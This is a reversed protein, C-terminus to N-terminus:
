WSLLLDLIAHCANWSFINKEFDRKRQYFLFFGEGEEKKQKKDHLLDIFFEHFPLLLSDQDRTLLFNHKRKLLPSPLRLLWDENLTVYARPM